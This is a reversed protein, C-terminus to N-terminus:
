ALLAAANGTWDKTCDDLHVDFDVLEHQVGKGLYGDLKSLCAEADPAISVSTDATRKGDAGLAVLRLDSVSPRMKAGDILLTACAPCNARIKECIKKGAMGVDLDDSLENAQYYGVIEISRQTCYEDALLLAAELMPALGPTSHFLPLVETVSVKDGGAGASGLLLGNITRTPYKCAHMFLVSYANPALTISSPTKSM